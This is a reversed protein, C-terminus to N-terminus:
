YYFTTLTLGYSTLLLAEDSRLYLLKRYISGVYLLAEALLLLSFIIRNYPEKISIRSNTLLLYYKITNLLIRRM